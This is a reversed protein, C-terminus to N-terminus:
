KGFSRTLDSYFCKAGYKRWVDKAFYLNLLSDPAWIVPAKSSSYQRPNTHIAEKSMVVPISDHWTQERM